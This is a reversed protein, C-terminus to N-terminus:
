AAEKIHRTEMRAAFPNRHELSDWRKMYVGCSEDIYYYKVGAKAMNLWMAYDSAVKMKEDFLGVEDHIARRWLPMPGIICRGKLVNLINKVEGEPYMIRKWPYVRHGDDLDVQTFVLGIDDRGDLVNVMRELGGIMYRDDTNATTLYEGTAVSIGMNWAAGITPINLTRIVRLDYKSAIIDEDSGAQCIVIIEMDVRKAAGYLNTLRADLFGKAFYASVLASVKPM